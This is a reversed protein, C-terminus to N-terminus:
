SVHLSGLREVVDGNAGVGSHLRRIEDAIAQKGTENLAPRGDDWDPDFFQSKFRRVTLM